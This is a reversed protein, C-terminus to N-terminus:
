LVGLKKFGQEFKKIVEKAEYSIVEVNVEHVIRNRCKHAEWLGNYVSYDHDNSFREKAKKLKDALSGSYGMKELVFYLLKDAELVAQKFRSEGGLEMLQQIEQWKKQVKERDSQLLYSKKGKKPLSKNIFILLGGGLLIAIGFIIFIMYDM